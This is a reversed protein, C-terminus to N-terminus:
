QNPTVVMRGTRHTLDGPAAAALDAMRLDRVLRAPTLLFASIPLALLFGLLSRFLFLTLFNLALLNTKQAINEILEVVEGILRCLRCFFDARVDHFDLFLRLRAIEFKWTEPRRDADAWRPQGDRWADHEWFDWL